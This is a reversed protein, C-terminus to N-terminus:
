QSSKLPQLKGNPGVVMIDGAWNLKRTVFAMTWMLPFLLDHPTIVWAHWEDGPNTGLMKQFIYSQVTRIVSFGLALWLLSPDSFLAALVLFIQGLAFFPGTMFMPFMHFRAIMMWRVQRKYYEKFSMEEQPVYVFHPAMLCQAGNKTFAQALIVDDTLYDLTSELGATENLLKRHFLMSGGYAITPKPALMSFLAVRTVDLNLAITEIKAAFNQPSINVPFSTVYNNSDGKALNMMDALHTPRTMSDIAFEYIWDHSAKEIGHAMKSSRPNLGKLKFDALWLLSIKQPDFAKEETLRKVFDKAATWVPDSSDEVCIVFEIHGPYEQLLITKLGRELVPTLGKLSVVVSISPYSDLLYQDRTKEYTLARENRKKLLQISYIQMLLFLFLLTSCVIFATTM